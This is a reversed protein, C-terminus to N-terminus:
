EVLELVMQGDDDPEAVDQQALQRPRGSVRRCGPFACPRGPRWRGEGPVTRVGSIVRRTQCAGPGAPRRRRARCARVPRAAERLAFAELDDGAAAPVRQERLQRRDVGVDREEIPVHGLHSPELDQPGDAVGVRRALHDQHGCLGRHVRRDFGDLEAREIVQALREVELASRSSSSVTRWSMSRRRRSSAASM